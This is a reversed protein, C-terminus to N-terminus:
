RAQLRQWVPDGAGILFAGRNADGHGDREGDDQQTVHQQRYSADADAHLRGHRLAVQHKDVLQDISKTVRLTPRM